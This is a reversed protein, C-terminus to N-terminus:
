KQPCKIKKKKTKKSIEAIKINSNTKLSRKISFNGTAEISEVTSRFAMERFNLRILPTFKTFHGKSINIVVYFWNNGQRLSTLTFEWATISSFSSFGDSIRSGVSATTTLPSLSLNFFTYSKLSFWNFLNLTFECSPGM